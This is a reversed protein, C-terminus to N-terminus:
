KLKGPSGAVTRLPVTVATVPALPIKRWVITLLIALYAGILLCAILLALNNALLSLVLLALLIVVLSRGVPTLSRIRGAGTDPRISGAADELSWGFLFLLPLSLLIAFFTGTLSSFLLTTSFFITSNAVLRAIQNGWWRWIILYGVALFLPVASLPPPSLVAAAVMLAAAYAKLIVVPLRQQRM